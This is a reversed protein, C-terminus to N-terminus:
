DMGEGRKMLGIHVTAQALGGEGEGWGIRGDGNADRGDVIAHAMAQIERALEAAAAATEASKVEQCLEAVRRGWAVVNNALDSLSHLADGVIAMSGVSFGVALKAATITANILGEIILVRQVTM